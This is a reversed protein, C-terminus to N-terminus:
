RVAGLRPQLRTDPLVPAPRDFQDLEDPPWTGWVPARGFIQTPDGGFAYAAVDARDAAAYCFATLMLRRCEVDLCIWLQHLRRVPRGGALAEVFQM